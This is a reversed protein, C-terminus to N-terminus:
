WYWTDIDIMSIQYRYWRNDINDTTILIQHHRIGFVGKIQFSYVAILMCVSLLAFFSFLSLSTSLSVKKVVLPANVFLKFIAMLFFGLGVLLMVTDIVPVGVRSKLMTMLFSWGVWKESSKRALCHCGVWKKWGM